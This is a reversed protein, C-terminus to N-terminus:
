YIKLYYIDEYLDSFEEQSSCLLFVQHSNSSVLEWKVRVEWRTWLILRRNNIRSSSSSSCQIWVSDKLITIRSSYLGLHVPGKSDELDLMWRTRSCRSSSSSFSRSRFILRAWWEAWLTRFDVELSIRNKHYCLGLCMPHEWWQNIGFWIWIKEGQTCCIIELRNHIKCSTQFHLIRPKIVKSRIM